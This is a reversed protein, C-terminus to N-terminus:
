EIASRVITQPDINAGINGVENQDGRGLLRNTVSELENLERINISEEPENEPFFPKAQPCLKSEEKDGTSVM